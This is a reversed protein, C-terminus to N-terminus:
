KYMLCRLITGLINMLVIWLSLPIYWFDPNLPRQMKAKTELFTIVDVYIVPQSPFTDLVLSLPPQESLGTRECPDAWVPGKAWMSKSLCTRECLDVWVPERLHIQESLDEWPSRWFGSEKWGCRGPFWVMCKRWSQGIFWSFQNILHNEWKPQIQHAKIMHLLAPGQRMGEKKCTWECSDM